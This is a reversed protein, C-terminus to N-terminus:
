DERQCAVLAFRRGLGGDHALLGWYRAASEMLAAASLGGVEVSDFGLDRALAAVQARAGPDDGAVPLLPRRGGPLVPDALHEAGLVNFAKVVRVGRGALDAVLAAGSDHGAPLPRGFPNTADVLLAGAPLELRPLVEEVAPFPVALVVLDAERGAGDIPLSSSGPPLTRDSGRRQAFGVEHGRRVLNAGLAAGVNGAGVVVVRSRGPRSM